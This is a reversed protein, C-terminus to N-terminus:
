KKTLIGPLCRFLENLEKFKDYIQTDTLMDDCNREGMGNEKKWKMSMEEPKYVLQPSDYYGRM